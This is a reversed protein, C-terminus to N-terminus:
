FRFYLFPSFGSGVMYSIAIIFCIILIIDYLFELRGSFKEKLKQVVPISFLLGLFLCFIYQKNLMAYCDIWSQQNITFMAIIYQIAQALTEARFFVWGIVIVLLAYLHQLATPLKELLKKGGIREFIQFIVYYLGWIIFNWSAGHWM